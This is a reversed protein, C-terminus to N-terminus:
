VFFNMIVSMSFMALLTQGAIIAAMSNSDGGLERSLIYASSATPLSAIIVIVLTIVAGL